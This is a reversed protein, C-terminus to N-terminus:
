PEGVLVFAAWYFPHSYAPNKRLALAAKRLAEPKSDGAILRRHFDIMLESTAKSSVKWRSVVTSPCGAILFAWSMGVVGEGPAIAGSGTDCASLVVLDAELHMGLIERAELLGDDQADRSTALVLASYMPAQDDIMGHTALHLVRFRGAEFKVTDERGEDRLLVRTNAAGYLGAIKRVEREADILSGLRADRYASRYRQESENTFSPNGVALLERPGGRKARHAAATNLMAMSPAYFVAAQEVMTKGNPAVLLQFPVRWLRDHPIFCMTKRDGILPEIPKILMQHLRRAAATWELDRSAIRDDLKNVAAGLREYTVPIVQAAVHTKGNEETIVFALSHDTGLLYEIVAAGQLTSPLRPKDAVLAGPQIRLEPHMVAMDLHFRDLDRRANDLTERMRDLDPPAVQPMVKNLEAVRDTLQQEKQKEPDTMTASPNGRGQRLADDLVRAKLREAVRLADDTRGMKVLLDAYEFYTPVKGDFYGAASSATYSRRSGEIDDIAIAFDREAEELRGLRHLATARAAKGKWVSWATGSAGVRKGAELSEDAATLAEGPRNQGLRVLALEKLADSYVDVTGTRSLNLAEQVSTDAAAYDRRERQMCALNIYIIARDDASGRPLRAAQMLLAEGEKKNGTLHAITARNQMALGRFGEHHVSDFLEQARAFQQDALQYDNLHGYINGAQIAAHGEGETWHYKRSLTGLRRTEVLAGRYDGTAALYHGKMVSAKLARRPDSVKEIDEVISDLIALTQKQEGAAWLTLAKGFLSSAMEDPDNGRGAVDIAKDLEQLAVDVQGELRLFAATTRLCLAEASLDGSKKAVEISRRMVNLARGALKPDQDSSEFAHECMARALRPLDLSSIDALLADYSSEDSDMLRRALQHEVSEATRIKWREGDRVLALVWHGGIQRERQIRGRSMGTADLLIHVTAKKDDAGLATIRASRVQVCEYGGIMEHMEWWALDGAPVDAILPDLARIDNAVFAAAFQAVTKEVPPPVDKAVATTSVVVMLFSLFSRMRPM